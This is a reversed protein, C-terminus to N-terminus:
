LCPSIKSFSLNFAKEDIKAFIKLLRATNIRVEVIRRFTSVQIGEVFRIGIVFGKNLINLNMFDVGNVGM